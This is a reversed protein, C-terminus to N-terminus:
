LVGMEVRAGAEQLRGVLDEGLFAPTLCGGTWGGVLRRHYVLSAGAQAMFLATTPYPGDDFAFSAFARQRGEGLAVAQVSVPFRKADAPDPGEGPAPLYRRAVARLFAFRLAAATVRAALVKLVAALRSPERQYENYQFRPSYPSAAPTAHQLLGWTRHAIGRNQVGGLACAALVGLHPDTRIGLLNTSPSTPGGPIPSLAWPQEAARLIAPDLSAKHMISEVSGGSPDTPIETGTVIVEKTPESYKEALTRAALLSLLDQPASFIGCCHILIVGAAQAKDHYKEIWGGIEASGGACDVYDTGNAVCADIVDEGISWYSVVSLCVKANAILAHFEAKNEPTAIEVAPQLRNPNLEKLKASLAELKSPSRAAIAWRLNTPLHLAIHEATLAGTYGTAGVLVLDYKRSHDTTAM